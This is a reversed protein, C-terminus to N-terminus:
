LPLFVSLVDLILEALTPMIESQINIKVTEIFLDLIM